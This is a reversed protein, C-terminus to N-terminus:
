DLFGYLKGEGPSGYISFKQIGGASCNEILTIQFPAVGVGVNTGFTFCRENLVIDLSLQRM